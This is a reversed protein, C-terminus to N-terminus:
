YNKLVVILWIYKVCFFISLFYESSTFECNWQSDRWDLDCFYYVWPICLGPFIKILDIHIALWISHKYSLTGQMGFRFNMAINKDKTAFQPVGIENYKTKREIYTCVRNGCAWSFLLTKPSSQILRFSM